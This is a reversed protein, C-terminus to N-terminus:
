WKASPPITGYSKTSNLSEVQHLLGKIFDRAETSAFPSNTTEAIEALTGASFDIDPIMSELAPNNYKTAISLGPENVYDWAAVEILTKNNVGMVFADQTISRISFAVNSDVNGLQRELTDGYPGETIIDGLFSLVSQGQYQMTDLWVEKHLHCVRTEEITCIRSLWQNDNMMGDRKPHGYEGRCQANEIRRHLGTGPRLIERGSVGTYIEGRSNKFNLAGLVVRWSGDENKPISGTKNTGMLATSGISFQAQM